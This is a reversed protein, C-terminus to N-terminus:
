KAGGGGGEESLEVIARCNETEELEVRWVEIDTDWFLDACVTRLLYEAMREATPNFPCPFFKQSNGADIFGHIARLTDLDQDFVLFGHDWHKDIWGGIREKLVSFDIVRGIADLDIKPRAFFHGVYNHGHWNACKSEHQYVRHGAAFQLRRVATHPTSM